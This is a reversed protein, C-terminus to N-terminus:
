RTFLYSLTLGYGYLLMPNVSQFRNADFRIGNM